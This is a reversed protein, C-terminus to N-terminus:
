LTKLFAVLSKRDELSLDLGFKHGPVARTKVRYGLFGTPTYDDRLRLPDFWDELTAVSGNHEFPGRYWVGKLSPVKYYGTGRRTKLTSTSDTHVSISMVDDQKLREDTVQFGDAPTLKNNTYLPPTHCLACGQEEFVQKGRSALADFKNPNPPPKLSYLFLALAYLQEDSYRSEKSPDRLEGRPRFDGYSSLFDAGQNLAAYRMLDGVTRHRVLGSLDLYRRDKVGILDPIRAPYFGSSGQRACVGVPIAEMVSAIEEITMRDPQSNPDNQLWPAAYSRRMFSRLDKLLKDKVKDDKANAFEIKTEYGFARDDPFNGQAGKIVSGDPMVRSHCMACSLIGLEVKGKERIVYKMNPLIGDKTTLVRNKDFWGTRKIESFLTGSSEFEIPADFVLEGAKIWDEQTKSISSDFVIEPQQAKLFDAYGAPERDPRYVPYSKYIPRVPIRYYYESSIHRPSAAAHALPLELSEMAQDDWTRPIVASWAKQDRAVQGGISATVATLAFSIAILRTITWRQM